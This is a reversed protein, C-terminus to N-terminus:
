QPPTPLAHLRRVFTDLCFVREEQIIELMEAAVVQGLLVRADAESFGERLLREFTQRTEPPDGSELQNAVVQFVAAELRERNKESKM